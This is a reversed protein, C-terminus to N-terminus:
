TDRRLETRALCFILIIHDLDLIVAEMHSLEVERKLQETKEKKAEDRAVLKALSRGSYSRFTVERITVLLNPDPHVKRATTTLLVKGGRMAHHSCTVDSVRNWRGVRLHQLQKKSRFTSKAKVLTRVIPSDQLPVCRLSGVGLSCLTEHELSQRERAGSVERPSRVVKSRSSTTLMSGFKDDLVKKLGTTVTCIGRVLFCDIDVTGDDAATVSSRTLVSLSCFFM